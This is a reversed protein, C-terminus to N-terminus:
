RLVLFQPRYYLHPPKSCRCLVFPSCCVLPLALNGCLCSPLSLPTGNYALSISSIIGTKTPTHQPPPPPPTPSPPALPKPTSASLDMCDEGGIVLVAATVMVM